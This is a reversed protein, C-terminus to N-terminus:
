KGMEINIKKKGTERNGRKKMEGNMLKAREDNGRKDTEERGWKGWKEAERNM